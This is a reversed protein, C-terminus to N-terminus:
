FIIRPPSDHATLVDTCALTLIIVCVSAIVRIWFGYSSDMLDFNGIAMYQYSEDLILVDGGYGTARCTHVQIM